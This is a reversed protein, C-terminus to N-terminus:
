SLDQPIDMVTWGARRWDEHHVTADVLLVTRQTVGHLLSLHTMDGSAAAGLIAVVTTTGRPLGEMWSAERTTPSLHAEALDPALATGVQDVIVVDQGSHELLDVIAAAWGVAQEFRPSTTWSTGGGSEVTEHGQPYSLARCDLVVAARPDETSEEQRVMLQRTRATAGWHIRSLPDSPRHERVLLDDASSRVGFLDASREDGLGARLLEEITQEDQRPPLVRLPSTGDRTILGRSLGLPGTRQERTPGVTFVGRRTTSLSYGTADSARVKESGQDQHSTRRLSPPLLDMRPNGAGTAASDAFFRVQVCEGVTVTDPLLVRHRPSDRVLSSRLLLFVLSAAVATLLFLGIAIAERRGLVPGAIVLLLGLAAVGAGRLTPRAARSRWRSQSSHQPSPPSTM